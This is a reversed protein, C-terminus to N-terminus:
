PRRIIWGAIAEKSDSADGKLGTKLASPWIAMWLRAPAWPVEVELAAGGQQHVDQPPLHHWECVPETM